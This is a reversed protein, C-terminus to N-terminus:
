GVGEVGLMGAKFFRGFPSEEPRIPGRILLYIYLYRLRLHFLYIFRFPLPLLLLLLLLLLVFNIIIVVTFLLIILVRLFITSILTSCYIYHTLGSFILVM